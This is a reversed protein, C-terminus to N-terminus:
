AMLVRCPPRAVAAHRRCGQPAWDALRDNDALEIVVELADSFDPTNRPALGAEEQGTLAACQASHQIRADRLTYM